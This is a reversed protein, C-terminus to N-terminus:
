YVPWPLAPRDTPPDPHLPDAVLGRVRAAFAAAEPASLLQEVRAELDDLLEELRALSAVLPDPVREGALGWLVTRLKPRENFTLSNDIAWLRGEERDKLIHGVKRDANDCVIDLLAISWLEPDLEPVFLSRHDFTPDPEIFLQASGIGYPGDVLRTEPVVDLGLAESVEYVLVERHPLSAAPFDHLPRQGRSPKYVVRRGSATGALLTANSANPFAGIVETISWAEM